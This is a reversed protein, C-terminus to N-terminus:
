NNIDAYFKIAENHLQYIRKVSYNMKDAIVEYDLTKIYRLYLVNKFPQKINNIKNEMLQKKNLLEILLNEEAIQKEAILHISKILQENIGQYYQNVTQNSLTELRKRMLNVEIYKEEYYFSDYIYSCLEEKAEEITM